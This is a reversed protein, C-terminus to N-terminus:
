RQLVSTVETKNKDSLHRRCQCSISGNARCLLLRLPFRRTARLSPTTTSSSSSLLLVLVARSLKKFLRNVQNPGCPTNSHQLHKPLANRVHQIALDRLSRDEVFELKRRVIREAPVGAQHIPDSFM